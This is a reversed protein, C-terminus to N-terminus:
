NRCLIDYDDSIFEPLNDYFRVNRERRPLELHHSVAVIKYEFQEGVDRIKTDLLDVVDTYLKLDFALSAATTRVALSPDAKSKTLAPAFIERALGDRGLRHAARAVLTVARPEDDTASLGARIEEDTPNAGARLLPALAQVTAVGERETDPVAAGIFLAAAAEWDGRQAKRWGEVFRLSPHPESRAIFADALDHENIADAAMAATHNIAYDRLDDDYIVHLIERVLRIDRLIRACILAGVFFQGVGSLPECLEARRSRWVGDLVRSAATIKERADQDLVRSSISEHDATIQDVVALAALAELNKDQPYRESAKAACSWWDDSRNRRRLFVIKAILIDATQHLEEPIGALPDDDGALDARAQVTYYAVLANFPDVELAILGFEVAEASNGDLWYGLVRHAAALPEAPAYDYGSILLPCASRIDGMRLYCLGMNVALRYGIKGANLNGLTTSLTKYQSLLDAPSLKESQDRIIDIQRLGHREITDSETTEADRDLQLLM